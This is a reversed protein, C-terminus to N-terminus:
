EPSNDRLKEFIFGFRESFEDLPILNSRTQRIEVESLANALVESLMDM